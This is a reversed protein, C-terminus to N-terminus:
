RFYKQEANSGHIKVHCNTCNQYVPSALNHPAAAQTKVGNAQRGFNGAGNHCELCLTFVVPRTLLRSNTSGHPVHCAMCGDVRVPSHEFVFPGRKDAHCNMCPEENAKAQEVHRPRSANGWTPQFSGHPNHCDSCSMVGENVRHKFPMSFQARVNTHCGECLDTQTKALLKVPTAASHVSHCTTCVIGANTHSSRRINARSLTQNHCTLCRDLVQEAPIKTFSVITGKEGFSEIHQNGPGHCGECGTREPPEKQSAISKFHANKYFKAYIPEHCGKCALSGVYKNGGAVSLPTPQAPSAHGSGSVKGGKTQAQVPAVALLLSLLVFVFGLM